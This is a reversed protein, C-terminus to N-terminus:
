NKSKPCASKRREFQVYDRCHTSIRTGKLAPFVHRHIIVTIIQSHVYRPLKQYIKNPHASVHEAFLSPFKANHADAIQQM